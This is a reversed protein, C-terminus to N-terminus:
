RYVSQVPWLEPAADFRCLFVLGADLGDGHVAHEWAAPLGDPADVRFFHSCAPQGLGDLHELTGLPVPQARLQVGTEERVERRVADELSEGDLVGGAPVQTGADLHDRHDFVLLEAGREVYVVVRRRLMAVRALRPEDTTLGDVGLAALERMREEDNATWPVVRLGRAHADRVLEATVLDERPGLTDAVTAVPPRDDFLFTTPARGAVDRLVEEHFSIVRIRDLYPELAPAGDPSKQEVIVPTDGAIRLVDDITLGSADSLDLEHAV